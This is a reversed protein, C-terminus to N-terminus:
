DRLGFCPADRKGRGRRSLLATVSSLDRIVLHERLSERDTGTPEDADFATQRDRNFTLAYAPDAAAARRCGDISLDHLRPNVCEGLSLARVSYGRRM